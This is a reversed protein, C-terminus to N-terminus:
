SFVRVDACKEFRLASIHVPRLRSCWKQHVCFCAFPRLPSNNESTQHDSARKIRLNVRSQCLLAVARLRSCWRLRGGFLFPVVRPPGNESFSRKAYVLARNECLGTKQKKRRRVGGRCSKATIQQSFQLNKNRVLSGKQPAM